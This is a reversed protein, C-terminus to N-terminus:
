TIEAEIAQALKALEVSLVRITIGYSPHWSDKVRDADRSLQYALRHYKEALRDMQHKTMM